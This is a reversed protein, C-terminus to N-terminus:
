PACELAYTHTHMNGTPGGTSSTVNMTLAGGNRLTTLQQATFTLTHTHPNSGDTPLTFVLPAGSNIMGLLTTRSTGNIPLHTHAQMNPLVITVGLNQTTCM